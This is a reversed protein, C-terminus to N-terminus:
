FAFYKIYTFYAVCLLPWFDSFVPLLYIALKFYGLKFNLSVGSLWISFESQWFSNPFRNARGLPSSSKGLWCKTLDGNGSKTGTLTGDSYTRTERGGQSPASGHPWVGQLCLFLRVRNSPKWSLETQFDPLLILSQSLEWPQHSKKEFTGILLWGSSLLAFPQSVHGHPEGGPPVARRM